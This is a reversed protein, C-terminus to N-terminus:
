ACLWVNRLYIAHLKLKLSDCRLSDRQLLFLGFRTLLGSGLWKHLFDYSMSKELLDYSKVLKEVQRATYLLINYDNGFRLVYLEQQRFRDCFETTQKYFEVLCVMKKVIKYRFIRNSFLNRFHQFSACIIQVITCASRSFRAIFLLVVQLM